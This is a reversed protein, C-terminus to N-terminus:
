KSFAELSFDAFIKIKSGTTTVFNGIILCGSEIMKETDITKIFEVKDCEYQKEGDFVTFKINNKTWYLARQLEGRADDIDIRVKNSKLQIQAKDKVQKVNIQFGSM